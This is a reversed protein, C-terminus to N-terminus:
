LVPEDCFEVIFREGCRREGDTDFVVVENKGEKLFPAPVYLTRLDAKKGTKTTEYNYFRGLNIGNIFVVGKKFSPIKVFTDAKKNISLQGKYFAPLSGCVSGCAFNVASYSLNSIEDLPLLFITWGLVQKGGISVGSIGKKEFIYPGYNTRGMNEVLIDLKANKLPPLSIKAYEAGREYIAIPEGDVFVNARDKLNEIDLVGGETNVTASYLAYGYALDCDEFYLPKESEIKKAFDLNDFLPAYETLMVKGYAMKDTEKATLPPLSCGNEGMKERIAYYTPTRDGAESLPACYDYSTVTPQYVGYNNAGNMFGFNTGGHFMYFNFSYGNKFFPILSECIDEASRVHHDEYLHDFWGSWFESCMLPQNPRKSKIEDMHEEVKSGFNGCALVGDINGREFDPSSTGDSTFLLCDKTRLRYLSLLDKLYEKDDAYAGYENEIQMMVVNGGNDALLPEIEDFVRNLYRTLKSYYLADKRRVKMDYKLLWWPFGGFEWEACIYPGPRVIAYLGLDKAERLFAALDNQGSFDFVGEVKEHVNWAVYTEVFEFGCEKLKLLRDHWYERPVRFYHITGSHIIIKKGDVLFDEGRFTLKKM